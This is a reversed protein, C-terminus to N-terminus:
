ERVYATFIDERFMCRPWDTWSLVDWRCVFVKRMVRSEVIELQFRKGVTKQLAGEQVMFIFDAIMLAPPKM